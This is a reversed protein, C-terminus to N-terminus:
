KRKIIRQSAMEKDNLAKVVYVGPQYQQMAIVETQTASKNLFRKLLQGDGTYLEYVVQKNQWAEPITIRLENVVPNPFAQLELRGDSEGLKVLRIASLEFQGDLDVTKLRYYLIGKSNTSVPDQFSYSRSTTYNGETFIIGADTFEVGDTSRQVVFHSANKEASTTWTVAVKRNILSVNFATLNVPLSKAPNFAHFWLSYYRMGLNSTGPTTSTAGLRVSVKNQSEYKATGMICTTTTDIDVYRLLPGTFRYDRENPNVPNGLPTTILQTSNDVSASKTKYFEVYERIILDDGDIDEATIEFTNVTASQETGSKIFQIEFDMWWNEAGTVNGTYGLQPQLAKNCGVDCVDIGQLVVNSSSRSKIKVLADFGSIVNNFRYIAGDEGANGSTLVPSHFVLDQSFTTLGTLTFAVALLLVRLNLLAYPLVSKVKPSKYLSIM